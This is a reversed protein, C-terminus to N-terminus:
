IDKAYMRRCREEDQYLKKNKEFYKSVIVYLMGVTYCWKM